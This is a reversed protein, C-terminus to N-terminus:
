FKFQVSGGLTRRGERSLSNVVTGTPAFPVTLFSDKYHIDFLNRAFVAVRWRGDSRGFGLGMNVIEYGPVATLEDGVTTYIRSRHYVSATGDLALTSSVPLDFNMAANVTHRPAGVLDYGRGQFQNGAPGFSCRADLAGNPGLLISTPCDTLYDTFTAKSYTYGLSFNLGKTPRMITELEFGRVRAGGANGTIFEANRFVTTQLDKYEDYFANVNVTLTRHLFQMKAGVTVDKVTQPKVDSETNTLISFTVTPGLYGRAATAYLLIDQRPKYEFGFRGSWDTKNTKATALANPTYPVVFGGPGPGPPFAPDVVSYSFARVTDYNVRLGGLLKFKDTLRFSGDAFGAVSRSRTQTTGLGNSISLLVGPPLVSLHLQASQFSGLGVELQSAYIGAIYEFREGKPSTLRIEQSFFRDGNRASQAQFTDLDSADISYNSPAVWYERWATISTLTYAGLEKNLELSAGYNENVTDGGYNEISVNNDPGIPTGQLAAPSAFGAAVPVDRLTWPNLGNTHSHQYDGILLASFGDGPTWYLKARTGYTHNGGWGRDQTKNYIFDDYARDYGFVQLALNSSLPLNVDGHIDREDLSGYSAFVNGHLGDVTPRSTTISVVGSSANKGFQTGQPGKLIEIREIDGLSGVPNGLPMVVGDVVLGVNQESSSAFSAITGVGRLRIGNDTTTSAPRITIGPAQYQIDSFTKIGSRELSDGSLVSVAIPVDQLRESRRTATVVIDQPSQEQDNAAAPEVNATPATQAQSPSSLAAACCGTALGVILKRYVLM